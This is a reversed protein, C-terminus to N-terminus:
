GHSRNAQHRRARAERLSRDEDASVRSLRGRWVVCEQPGALTGGKPGFRLWHTAVPRCGSADEEEGGREAEGGPSCGRRRVRLRWRVDDEGDDALHLVDVVKSLRARAARM